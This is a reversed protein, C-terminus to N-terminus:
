QTVFAAQGGYALLGDAAPGANKIRDFWLAYYGSAGTAADVSSFPGVATVAVSYTVGSPLSAGLSSLDPIRTSTGAVLLYFSTATVGVPTFAASYVVGTTASANWSFTTSTSVGSTPPDILTPAAPLAIAPSSTAALQAVCADGYPAVVPGADAPTTGADDDVDTQRACIALTAGPVDPTAYFPTSSASTDKLFPASVGAGQPRFYLYTFSLAYGSAVAITPALQGSGALTGAGVDFTASGGNSLNISGPAYSYYVGGTSSWELAYATAAITQPGLWYATDVYTTSSSNFGVTENSQAVATAGLDTFVVASTAGAAWTVSGTVRASAVGAGDAILQLTPDHRTLGQFSYGHKAGASTTTLVAIDYAGAPAGLTFAGTADSQTAEAGISVVANAVAQWQSDIVRGSIAGADSRAESPGDDHVVVDPMAAGDPRGPGDAPGDHAVDPGSTVDPNVDSTDAEAAADGGSREGTFVGGGCAWPTCGMGAVVLAWGV